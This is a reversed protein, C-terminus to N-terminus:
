QIINLLEICLEEDKYYFVSGRDFDIWIELKGAKQDFCIENVFWPNEVMLAKSFLDKLTIM